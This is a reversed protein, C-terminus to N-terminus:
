FPIDNLDALISTPVSFPLDEFLAALAMEPSKGKINLQQLQGNHRLAEWLENVLPQNWASDPVMRLFGYNERAADFSSSSAWRQVLSAAMAHKSEQKRALLEFIALAIDSTTSDKNVPLAQYRGLFGYPTIGAGVPIVLLSRAICFGVEQDTWNSEKFGPTLLAVCADCSGLAYKIIDIWDETAEISDHAVFADVSRKALEERLDGAMTKNKEIHSIFLRFGNGSWPNSPDEFSKPQPSAVPAETPHLYGDLEQLSEDSGGHRIMNLVYSAEGGDPDNSTPFGFEELTLDIDLWSQQGLTSAIRKKVAIRDAHTLM